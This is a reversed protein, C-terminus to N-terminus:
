LEIFPPCFCEFTPWINLLYVNLHSYNSLFILCTLSLINARSRGSIALLLMIYIENNHSLLISFLLVLCATLETLGLKIFICKYWAEVIWSTSRGGKSGSSSNLLLPRMEYRMCNYESSNLDASFNFMV